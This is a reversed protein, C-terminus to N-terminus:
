RRSLIEAMLDRNADKTNRMNQIAADITGNAKGEKLCTLSSMLADTQVDQYILVHGIIKGHKELTDPVGWFRKMLNRIMVVIGAIGGGLVVIAAGVLVEVIRDDV